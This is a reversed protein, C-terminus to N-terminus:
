GSAIERRLALLLMEGGFRHAGGAFEARWVEIKSVKCARCWPPAWLSGRRYTAMWRRRLPRQPSQRLNLRFATQLVNEVVISWM